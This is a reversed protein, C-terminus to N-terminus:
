LHGTLHAVLRAVAMALIAFMLGDVRDLLGGHGPILQGSDKVGFRRKLMSEWLDGGMTFLGVILGIVVAWGRTPDGEGKAVGVVIVAALAAAALGGILGSWTKNPSFRPWLKPGKFINGAVFAFIDASWTIALLMLAWDRGVDGSRLWVLAISPAGIYLVGFAEDAAREGLKWLRSVLAAAGAGLPWILWALAVHGLWAAFVAALVAMCIVLASRFPTDPASMTGWEVALLAVAAAVMVLFLPGGLWFLGVVAPALVAASIARLRLNKWDFPKRDSV